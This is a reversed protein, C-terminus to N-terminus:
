SPLRSVTLRVAELDAQAHRGASNLHAWWPDDDKSKTAHPAMIARLAAEAAERDGLRHAIHSAAVRPAQADPFLRLADDFAAKAEGFRSLREMALGLFLSGYYRLVTESTGDIARRLQEAADKTRGRGHLVWGLRLRAEAHSPDIALARRLQEEAKTLEADAVDFAARIGPPLKLAARSAQVTPHALAEHLAGILFRIDADEAFISL